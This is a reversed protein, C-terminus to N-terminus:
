RRINIIVGEVPEGPAKVQPPTGGPAALAESAPDEGHAAGGGAAGAEGDGEGTGEEKAGSPEPEPPPANIFYVAGTSLSYCGPVGGVSREVYGPLCSGQGAASSPALFCSALAAALAAAFFRATM